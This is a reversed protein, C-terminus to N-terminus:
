PTPNDPFGGGVVSAGGTDGITAEGARSACAVAQPSGPAEQGGGRLAAAVTVQALNREDHAQGGEGFGDGLKPLVLAAGGLGGGGASCGFM